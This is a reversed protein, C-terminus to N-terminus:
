EDAGSEVRRILEEIERRADSRTMPFTAPDGADTGWPVLVDFDLNLLLRLSALYEARLSEGLLVVQWRGRHRWLSDGVFLFRHQGSDWLFTTTGATHGSTPIIELDDDIRERGDFTGAVALTGATRAKDAIHVWTPVELRPAPYTAEHWHNILLREPASLRTIEEHAADIGPSNYVLVNGAERELLFSRVVVGALFPLPATPTTYLRPHVQELTSM